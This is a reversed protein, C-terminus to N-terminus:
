YEEGPFAPIKPNCELSGQSDPRTEPTFVYRHGGLFRTDSIRPGTTGAAEKVAIIMMM